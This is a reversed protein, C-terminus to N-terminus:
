LGDAAAEVAAARATREWLEPDFAAAEALPIPFVTRQGHVTDFGFVLPIGLRTEELAWRQAERTRERGWLNLMSGVRGERIAAAYDPTVGPGTVALEATVMTLQGIKEELTMAALLDDVQAHPLPSESSAPPRRQLLVVKSLM